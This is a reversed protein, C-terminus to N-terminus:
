VQRPSQMTLATKVVSFDEKAHLRVPRGQVEAGIIYGPTMVSAGFSGGGLGLNASSFTHPTVFQIQVDAPKVGLHQAVASHAQEQVSLQPEDVCPNSGPEVKM